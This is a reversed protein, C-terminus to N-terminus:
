QVIITVGVTGKGPVDVDLFTFQLSPDTPTAGAANKYNCRYRYGIGSIRTLDVFVQSAPLTITTLISSKTADWAGTAAGGAERQIEVSSPVGGTSATTCTVQGFQKAQALAVASMVSLLLALGLGIARIM